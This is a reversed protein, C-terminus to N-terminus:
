RCIINMKKQRRSISMLRAKQKMENVAKDVNKSCIWKWNDIIVKKVVQNHKWVEDLYISKLQVLIFKMVKLCARNKKHKKYIPDVAERIAMQM